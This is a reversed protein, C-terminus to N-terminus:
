ICSRSMSSYHVWWVCAIMAKQCCLSIIVYIRTGVPVALATDTRQKVRPRDRSVRGSTRRMLPISSCSHAPSQEINAPTAHWPLSGSLATYRPVTEKPRHNVPQNMPVAATNWNSWYPKLHDYHVVKSGAQNHRLNLLTYLLGHNDSSFVRYPGNWNPDLKNRQTTPDDVWVM